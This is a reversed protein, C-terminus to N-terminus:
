PAMPDFRRLYFGEERYKMANSTRKDQITHIKLGARNHDVILIFYTESQPVIPLFLLYYRAESDNCGRNKLCRKWAKLYELLLVTSKEAALSTIIDSKSPRSASRISIEVANEEKVKVTFKSADREM